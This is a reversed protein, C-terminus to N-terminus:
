QNSSQFHFWSFGRVVTRSFIINAWNTLFIESKISGSSENEQEYSGVV